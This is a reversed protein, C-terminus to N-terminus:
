SRFSHLPKVFLRFQSHYNLVQLIANLFCHQDNNSNELGRIPCTSEKKAKLRSAPKGVIRKPIESVHRLSSVFEPNHYPCLLESFAPISEKAFLAPVTFNGCPVNRIILNNKRSPSTNCLFGVGDTSCLREVGKAVIQNHRQHEDVFPFIHIRKSPPLKRQKDVDIKAMRIQQYFLNARLRGDLLLTRASDPLYRMHTTKQSEVADRSILKGGYMTVFQKRHLPIASFLGLNIGHVASEVAPYSSVAVFLGDNNLKPTGFPSTLLQFRNSAMIAHEEPSMTFEAILDTAFKLAPLLYNGFESM